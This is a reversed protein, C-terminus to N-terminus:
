QSLSISSFFALSLCTSLIGQEFSLPLPWGPGTHATFLFYTLVGALGLRSGPFSLCLRGVAARGTLLSEQSRRGLPVVMITTVFVSM